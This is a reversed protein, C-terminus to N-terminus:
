LGLSGPAPDDERGGPDSREERQHRDQHLENRPKEPHGEGIGPDEDHGCHQEHTQMQLRAPKGNIMLRSSPVTNTTPNILIARNPPRRSDPSTTM